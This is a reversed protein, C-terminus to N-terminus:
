AHKGWLTPYRKARARKSSTTEADVIGITVNHVNTEHAQPMCRELIEARRHVKSHTKANRLTSTRQIVSKLSLVSM